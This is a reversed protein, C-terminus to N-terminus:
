LKLPYIKILLELSFNLFGHPWPGELKAVSKLDKSGEIAVIIYDFNSVFSRIIKKQWMLM